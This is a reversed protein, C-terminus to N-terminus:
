MTTRQGFFYSRRLAALSAALHSLGPRSRVLIEVAIIRSPRTHPSLSRPEVHCPHDSYYNHRSSTIPYRSWPGTPMECTSQPVEEGDFCRECWGFGGRVSTARSQWQSSNDQESTWPDFIHGCAAASQARLPFM